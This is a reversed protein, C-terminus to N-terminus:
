VSVINKPLKVKNSINGVLLVKWGKDINRALEIIKSLGKRDELIWNSAVCLVVFSDELGFEKRIETNKKPYFESLDIWNYIRQVIKATSLFSRKAENTIWDSVGIVALRDIAEFLKQKDSWMQKTRDLFWSINDKKLQVCGGCGIQWKSCNASSYYHCKGTYFWCDHLTVVTAINNSGLYELLTNLNICNSHLVRLHVVNPKTTKIYKLLKRTSFYSYYGQKGTIRSLLSHLRTEISFGFKFIKDNSEGSAIAVLGTHNNENLYDNLEKTTRGTSAVEYVSNIQLIKM